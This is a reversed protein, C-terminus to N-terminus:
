EVQGHLFWRRRQRDYYVWMVDGKQTEVFHYDRRVERVWWGGSITYPGHIRVMPGQEPGRVLWGDPEHHGRHPLPLPRDLLRRILPRETVRRPAPLRAEQLPEWSFRAEPLHARRLRAWVVSLRGFEARIRAFARAAASLDRRPREAFLDLQDSDVPEGEAEIRMEVVGASPELSELKLRVLELIQATDLTPEATRVSASTREGDDLRADLRLVSLGRNREALRELLSGLVRKIVFALRTADTEPHDLEIWAELPPDPIEPELPRQLNGSALRHLRLAEAGFRRGLENRPLQLFAGVTHIGLRDLRDRLRPTLHLRDLRVRSAAQREREPDPVVTVGKRTRALVYSGFRSFGVALRAVLDNEQLTELLRRGWADLSEEIRELGSADLWFVGPEADSPEVYPSFDRLTDAINGVGEEITGEEVTGACLDRCLSLGAAYRMGPLVRARYARENVWLILGQPRDDAVVAVPQERWEPKDKVLLQLALAPVDVCALRDSRTAADLM